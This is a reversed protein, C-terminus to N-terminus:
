SNFYEDHARNAWWQGAWLRVDYIESDRKPSCEDCLCDYEKTVKNLFRYSRDVVDKAHSELNGNSTAILQEKNCVSCEFSFKKYGVRRFNKM